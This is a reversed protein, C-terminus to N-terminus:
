ADISSDITSTSSINSKEHAESLRDTLFIISRLEEAAAVMAKSNWVDSPKSNKAVDAVGLRWTWNGEAKGPTNM